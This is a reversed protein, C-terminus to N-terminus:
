APLRYQIYYAPDIHLGSCKLEFHLHPGTVHGTAGVEGVTQGLTVRQGQQVCLTKCHAYFSKIGQGHDLQLYNGYADSQGVYEVTGSAFAHIETGLAAGLDVGNHFKYVGDIPHDRYGYPSWLTGMVPTTTELDGLSLQDMTYNQPLEPGHYDAALLVTGVAPTAPEPEAPTEPPKVFVQGIKDSKVDFWKPEEEMRLYHAATAAYSPTSNLFLREAKPSITQQVATPVAQNEQDLGFIELCFVGIEGLFSDQSTLADGLNSFAQAFDTNERIIGMLQKSVQQIRQPFVGKGIFVTLFVALCVLLQILRIRDRQAAKQNSQNGTSSRKRERSSLSRTNKKYM